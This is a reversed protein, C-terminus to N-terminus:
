AGGSVSRALADPARGSPFALQLAQMRRGPMGKGMDVAALLGAGFQAPEWHHAIAASARGMDARQEAAAGALAAM